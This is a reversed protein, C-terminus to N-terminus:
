ARGRQGPRRSMGAAAWWRVPMGGDCNEPRVAPGQGPAFGADESAALDLRVRSVVGLVASRSVGGLVRAVEAATMGQREVMDLVELMRRDTWGEGAKVGAM